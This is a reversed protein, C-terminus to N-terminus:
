ASEGIFRRWLEMVESHWMSSGPNGYTNIWFAGDEAHWEGSSLDSGELQKWSLTQWNPVFMGIEHVGIAQGDFRSFGPEQSGDLRRIIIWLRDPCKIELRTRDIRAMGRNTMITM